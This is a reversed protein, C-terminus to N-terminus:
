KLICFKCKSLKLEWKTVKEKFTNLIVSNKIDTPVLNCANSNLVRLSNLDYQSRNLSSTLFETKSKLNFELNNSMQFINNMM